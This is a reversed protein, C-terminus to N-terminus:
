RPKETTLTEEEIYFRHLNRQCLVQIAEPNVLGVPQQGKLADKVSKVCRKGIENMSNFSMGAIHPTIHLNPTSLIPSDEPLPHQHHVDLVAAGLKGKNLAKIVADIELIPGRAVNVLIASPSMLSLFNADIMGRTQETLPCAIVVADVQAALEPLGLFQYSPHEPLTRTHILVTCGMADLLTALRQGIAGFGIIGVTSGSLELGNVALSRGQFWGTHCYPTLASRIGPISRRVTLLMGIVYEAVTNANANPTNTVLIGKETARSVPIMDLGVGHRAAIALNPADDFIDEPLTTRVIVANAEKIAKRLEDPTESEPLRVDAWESLSQQVNEQM